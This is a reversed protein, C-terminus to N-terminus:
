LRDWDGAPGDCRLFLGKFDPEARRVAIRREPGSGVTVSGPPRSSLARRGTGRGIRANAEAILVQCCPVLSLTLDELTRGRAILLSASGHVACRIKELARGHRTLIRQVVTQAAALELADGEFEWKVAMM